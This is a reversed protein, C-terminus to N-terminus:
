CLVYDEATKMCNTIDITLEAMAAAFVLCYDECVAGPLEPLEEVKTM